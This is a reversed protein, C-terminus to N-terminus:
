QATPATFAGRRRDQEAVAVERTFGLGERPGHACGRATHQHRRTQRLGDGQLAKQSLGVLHPAHAEADCALGVAREFRVRPDLM